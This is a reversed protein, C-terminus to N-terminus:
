KKTRRLRSSKYHKPKYPKLRVIKAIKKLEKMVVYSKQDYGLAIVDPKEQKIHPWPSAVGGLVVKDVIKIKKLVRVRDNESMVSKYGKVKKVNRDRAVSVILYDGLSKAQRLFNKHGPHLLDFVGFM